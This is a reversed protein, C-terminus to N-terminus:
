ISQLQQYNKLIQLLKQHQRLMDIGQSLSLYPVGQQHNKRSTQYMFGIHRAIERWGFLLSHKPDYIHTPESLAGNLEIICFNQGNALEDITNYKIDFRGYYFGKIQGALQDFTKQLTESIHHSIDQFESGRAHNGITSLTLSQGEPLVTDMHQAQKQQLYKIQYFFRPNNQILELVTDKGNGTVAVIHKQVIGSVCGRAQGPLRYYFVGAENPLDIYTQVLFDTGIQQHYQQLETENNIKEVAMGRLGIDPKAICPYQIQSQGMQAKLHKFNDTNQARFTNPIHQQPLRQYIDYKSEMAM